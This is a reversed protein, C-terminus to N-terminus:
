ILLKKMANAKSNNINEIREKMIKRGNITLNKVDIAMIVPRVDKNITTINVNNIIVNELHRLYIGYAPVTGGLYGYEPWRRKDQLEFWEKSFEGFINNADKVTGGGATRIIIDSM